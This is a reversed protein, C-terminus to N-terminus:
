IRLKLGAFITDPCLNFVSSMEAAMCFGCQNCVGEMQGSCQNLKTGDSFIFNTVWCQKKFALNKMKKLGSFSNMIPYGKRKYSVALDIIESRKAMDLSLYETGKFPTHFNVSLSKLYPNQKVYEITQAVAEFNLTNVVMNASLAKHNATAINQELKAFTGNGRIEEHYKDIGDLSVWVSDANTHFPLQANTTITCSFFGIDRKALTILDNITRGNDEWIFPEGGEFDVFRAGADYCYQLEESIQDFTKIHPQETNYVSCHRCQLNCKDSIFIVSQLPRKRNLFKAGFFWWILYLM